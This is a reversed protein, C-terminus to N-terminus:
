TNEPLIIFDSVMELRIEPLTEEIAEQMQERAEPVKKSEAVFAQNRQEESEWQAYAYWIGDDGCHLRSGSSNYKDRFLATRASWNEVFQAELHAKIRWRYLIIFM